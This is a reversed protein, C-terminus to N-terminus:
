ISFLDQHISQFHSVLAEAKEKDSVAEDGNVLQLPPLEKRNKKLSKAMKWLSKDRTNLKKLKNNWFKRKHNELRNKIEENHKMMINKDESAGTRQYNKRIKNREKMLNPLTTPFKTASPQRFFV